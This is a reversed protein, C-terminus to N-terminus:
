PFSFLSTTQRIDSTLFLNYFLLRSFNDPRDDPDLEDQVLM